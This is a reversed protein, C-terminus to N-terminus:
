AHTVTEPQRREESKTYLWQRVKEPSGWCDSPIENYCWQVIEYLDRRNEDDARGFAGKLDNSLVALLFDGLPVGQEVYREIGEKTSQKM